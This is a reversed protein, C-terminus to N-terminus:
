HPRATMRKGIIERHGNLYAPAPMIRGGAPQVLRVALAGGRASIAFGDDALMITGPELPSAGKLPEAEVVRFPQGDLYGYAMPWPNYARVQRAITTADHRQWDILADTKKIQPAYTVFSEDQEVATIEGREYRPLVDMLLSAGAEAVKATLTGSTDDPTIPLRVSALMPGADLALVVKMITAGTEADGALIAAPIPAAGRWRPLLSAHVNLIGLRPVDLVPQRLLQGYAAIIGIDPALARLQEVSEPKSVSAPQLVPIGCAVAVTKAPPAAPKRGRGTPRDPQTVVAVLEHESEILRRLAPLAFEPSGMFVIRMARLM